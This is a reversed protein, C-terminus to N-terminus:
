VQAADHLLIALLLWILVSGSLFSEAKHVTSVTLHDTASVKDKTCTMNIGIVSYRFSSSNRAEIVHADSNYNFHGSEQELTAVGVIFFIDSRYAEIPRTMMESTSQLPQKYEMSGRTCGITQSYDVVVFYMEVWERPGVYEMLSFSVTFNRSDDSPTRLAIPLTFISSSFGVVFYVCRLMDGKPFKTTHNQIHDVYSVNLVSVEINKIPETVVFAVQMRFVKLPQSLNQMTVNVTLVMGNSSTRELRRSIRVAVFGNYEFHALSLVM